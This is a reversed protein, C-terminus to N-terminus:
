KVEAAASGDLGRGNCGCALGNGIWVAKSKLTLRKTVRM